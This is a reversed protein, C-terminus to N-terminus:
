RISMSIDSSIPRHISQSWCSHASEPLSDLRIQISQCAQSNLVEYFPSHNIVNISHNSRALRLLLDIFGEVAGWQSRTIRMM